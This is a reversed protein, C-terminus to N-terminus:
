PRAPRSEGARASHEAHATDVHHTGKRHAHQDIFDASLGAILDPQAAVVWHGGEVERVTLDAVWPRPSQAAAAPTVFPDGLPVVVQVPIDVPVPRPRALHAGMNARYLSIGNVRDAETRTRAPDAAPDAGSRREAFAVVRDGVGSRALAEPLGPLQFLAIYYSHLLQRLSARPHARLDRLWVATYDLCPGSISTFTAIRGALRPDTVMAWAQISGWDHALLHVPGAGELGDLVALLDDVLLRMRYASRATPKGSDGCGRVDYTVVHFREALLDGVADWVHHNDPYGHVAVVVPAGPDGREFVAIPTGDGSRATRTPTM